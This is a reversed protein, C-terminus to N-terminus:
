GDGRYIYRCTGIFNFGIFGTWLVFVFHFLFESVLVVHSCILALEFVMYQRAPEVILCPGLIGVVAM